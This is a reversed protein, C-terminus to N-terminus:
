SKKFILAEVEPDYCSFFPVTGKAVEFAEEILSNTLNGIRQLHSYFVEAFLAAMLNPVEGQWGISYDVSKALKEALKESNCSNFFALKTKAKTQSKELIDLFRFYSFEFSKGDEGSIIIGNEAMNGHGIFHLISPPSAAIDSNITPTVDITHFTDIIKIEEFHKFCKNISVIEKSELIPATGRPNALLLLGFKKNLPEIASENSQTTTRVENYILELFKELRPIYADLFKRTVNQTNIPSRDSNLNALLSILQNHLTTAQHDKRNSTLEIAENIAQDVEGLIALQKWERIKEM